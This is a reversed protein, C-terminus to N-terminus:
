RNNVIGHVIVFNLALLGGYCIMDVVFSIHVHPEKDSLWNLVRTLCNESEKEDGKLVTHRLLLATFTLSFIATLGRLLTFSFYAVRFAFNKVLIGLSLYTSLASSCTMLKLAIVLMKVCVETILHKLNRIEVVESNCACECIVFCYIAFVFRVGAIVAAAFTISYFFLRYVLLAYWGKGLYFLNVNSFPAFIFAFELDGLRIFELFNMCSAGHELKKRWCCSWFFGGYIPLILVAVIEYVFAIFTVLSAFSEGAKSLDTSKNVGLIDITGAAGWGVIGLYVGNAAILVVKAIVQVVSITNVLSDSSCLTTSSTSDSTDSDTNCCKLCSFSCSSTLKEKCVAFLTDEICCPWKTTMIYLVIGVILGMFSFVITLILSTKDVDAFVDM